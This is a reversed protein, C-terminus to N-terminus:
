SLDEWYTLTGNKDVTKTHGPSAQTIWASFAGM